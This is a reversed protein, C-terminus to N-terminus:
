YNRRIVPMHYRPAQLALIVSASMQLPGRTHCDIKWNVCSKKCCLLTRPVRRPSCKLTQRQYTIWDAFSEHKENAEIERVTYVFYIFAHFRLLTTSSGSVCEGRLINQSSVIVIGHWERAYPVRPCLRTADASRRRTYAITTQVVRLTGCM